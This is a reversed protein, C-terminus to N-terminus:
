RDTDSDREPEKVMTLTAGGEKAITAYAARAGAIRPMRQMETCADWAPMRTKLYELSWAAEADHIAGAMREILRDSPDPIKAKKHNIRSTM